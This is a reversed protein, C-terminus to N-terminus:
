RALAVNAASVKGDRGTELEFTVKDGENLSQLGSRQLASIHVFADKEGNEPSIFGYGKTTNFFKVTGTITSM